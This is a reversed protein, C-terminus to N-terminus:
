RDKKSETKAQESLDDSYAQLLYAVLVINTVVAALIASYTSNGNFLYKISTFYSGVPLIVMALTFFLLKLIVDTPVDQEGAPSGASPSAKVENPKTEEVEGTASKQDSQPNRRTPAM